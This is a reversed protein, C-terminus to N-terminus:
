AVIALIDRERPTLHALREASSFATTATRTVAPDDPVRALEIEAETLAGLAADIEAITRRVRGRQERLRELLSTREYLHAFGEAFAWLLDRDTADCSTGNAGHDAHFFGV